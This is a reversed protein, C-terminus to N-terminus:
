ATDIKNGAQLQYMAYYLGQQGMLSEHDGREVIEGRNLVLIQDAKRITSLRHAIVFTTRGAKVINLAQQIVEETETDINATAEDLILIAPNFVLARAFSILQRQGASLTSGKEKVEEDIGNPLSQIMEIAGVKELAAVIEERSVTPDNMSVNTAITGTFLFPDQLVIAMHKRVAQKSISHIDINDITIRGQQHDYFRFLINMISSKGSGTHGVFAVTEGKKAFFSINNLVYEDKEYAFSVRDFRVNGHFREVHTHNVEVGPEDMLTFVREAAIRAEELQALQNVIGNVPEFLRNIYDVFAYLVGMTFVTGVGLAGGGFYWILLVFTLNRFFNVLNFSTAANLSLLKRNYQFHEKNVAEFENTVEKERGFAQILSMGQISENIKGNIDSLRERIVRNFKGAFKRYFIMWIIIVPVIFLTMTALSPDLLYLAIFIGTMYIISTFFTALVRVYLERIAETDNTIRSVIKGAPIHDFYQVPLQHVKAFVDERMKKIIRNASEQLLFRQHYHFFAAILILIFYGGMLLMVYPIEPQFFQFVESATLAQVAYESIDGQRDIILTEHEVHRSGDMIVREHLLYYTLGFQFIQVEKQDTLVGDYRDTRVFHSGAYYVEGNEEVEVWPREIGLIHNDIMTKAIFPGTLEAAAAIALFLLAAIMTKKFQLAYRFLRKSVKM